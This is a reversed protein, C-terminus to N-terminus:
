KKRMKSKEWKRRAEKLSRDVGNRKVDRKAADIDSMKVIKNAKKASRAITGIIGWPLADDHSYSNLPIGMRAKILDRARAVNKEGYKDKLPSDTKNIPM